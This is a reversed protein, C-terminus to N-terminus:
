RRRGATSAACRSSHPRKMAASDCTAPTFGAHPVRRHRFSGIWGRSADRRRAARRPRRADIQGGRRDVLERQVEVIEIRGRAGVARGLRPARGRSGPARRIARTPAPGGHTARGVGDTDARRRRLRARPEPFSSKLTTLAMRVAIRWNRWCGENASTVTSTSPRPVPAAVVTNVTTSATTRRGSGYAAGSRSTVSHSVFMSFPSACSGIEGTLKM